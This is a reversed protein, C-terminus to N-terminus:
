WGPAPAPLISGRCFPGVASRCGPLRHRGARLVSRLCLTRAGFKTGTPLGNSSAAFFGVTCCNFTRAVTQHRWGWCGSGVLLISTDSAQWRRQFQINRPNHSAHNRDLCGSSLGGARRFYRRRRPQQGAAEAQACANQDAPDPMDRGPGKPLRNQPVPEIQLGLHDPGPMHATPQSIEYAAWCV